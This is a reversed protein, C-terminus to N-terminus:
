RLAQLGSRLNAKLARAVAAGDGLVQRLQALTHVPFVAEGSAVAVCEYPGDVGAAVAGVLKIQSSEDSAYRHDTGLASSIFGATMAREYERRLNAARASLAVASDEAFVAGDYLWGVNPPTPLGTVDIWNEFLPEDAVAINVVKGGIVIAYNM